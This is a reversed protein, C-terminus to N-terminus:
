GICERLVRIFNEGMYSRIEERSLGAERMAAALRELDLEDRYGDILDPLQGGGDTGLGVHEMGLRKKMEVIELAWDSFTRRSANGTKYALPWTCVVGGTKAVREMDEWTRARGCGPPDPVPCPSTHSDVLPKGSMEAIQELTLSQAHAVDVIMGAEQMREVIKRGAPTLGNRPPAPQKSGYASMVDGLENNRYHMLTIMRVGMRHFADVRDPKGELADGGEIALLAGPPNGPGAVEPLDSSKRILKVKGRNALHLVSQLQRNASMYDSDQLNGGRRASADGIASFASATMGLETIAGLTSSRDTIRSSDAYFQDPHAHADVIRIGRLLNKDPFPAQPSEAHSLTGGTLAFSAGITASYRLFQRRSLAKSM